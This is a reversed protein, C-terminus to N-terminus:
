TAAGSTARKIAHVLSDLGGLPQGDGVEDILQADTDAAHAAQDLVAVQGRLADIAHDLHRRREQTVALGDSLQM